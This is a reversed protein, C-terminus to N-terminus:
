EEGAKEVASHRNVQNNKVYASLIEDVIKRTFGTFMVVNVVAETLELPPTDERRTERKWAKVLYLTALVVPSENM